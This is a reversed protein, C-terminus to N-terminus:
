AEDELAARAANSGESLKEVRLRLRENDTRLQIVEAALAEARTEAEDARTRQADVLSCRSDGYDDGYHGGCAGAALMFCEARLRIVEAALAELAALSLDPTDTM